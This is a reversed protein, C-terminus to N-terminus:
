RSGGKPADVENYWSRGGGQQMLKSAQPPNAEVPQPPGLMKYLNNLGKLMLRHSSVGGNDMVALLEGVEARSLGLHSELAYKANGLTTQLRSGGLEPDAKVENIRQEITRNWVERQYRLMNEGVKRVEAFHRDLLVQAGAQHDGSRSASDFLETYERTTNRDLPQAGEPVKFEAYTRPPLAEHLPSKPEGHDGPVPEARQEGAPPKGSGDGPDAPDARTDGPAVDVKDYWGGEEAKSPPPGPSPGAPGPSAAPAPAPAAAIANSLGAAIGPAANTPDTM